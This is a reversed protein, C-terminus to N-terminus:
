QPQLFVIYTSKGAIKLERNREDVGKFDFGIQYHLKEPSAEIAEVTFTGSKPKFAFSTTFGPITGTEFYYADEFPFGTDTVSYTGSKINKDFVLVLGKKSRHSYDQTNARTVLAIQNSAPDAAYEVIQSEFKVRGSVTALTEASVTIVPEATNASITNKSKFFSM